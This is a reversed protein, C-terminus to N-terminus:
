TEFRKIIINVVYQEESSIEVTFDEFGVIM